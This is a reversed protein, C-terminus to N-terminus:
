QTKKLEDFGPLTSLDPVVVIEIRRNLAKNDPTDNAAAPKSDGFSAASVSGAPMGADVMTKLVTLSRSSALEWNSPFQATKIPVNDTHGEVQFKRDPISALVAAVEEVSAKGDKSLGASGSAFLIDSALAVVMRGDVIKVKLKGADILSQFRSLLNKYEAIRRDAEAKRKNLEELASKMEDVSTKLGAKDKLTAALDDSTKKLESSSSALQQELSAKDAALTTAKKQEASLSDQLTKGRAEAQERKHTEATQVLNANVLDKKTKENAMLLEDYTGATVCAGLSCVAVVAVAFVSLARFM